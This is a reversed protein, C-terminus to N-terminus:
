CVRWSKVLGRMAAFQRDVEQDAAGSRALVLTALMFALMMETYDSASGSAIEGSAEARDFAPRVNSRIMDRYRSGLAATREDRVGLETTVNVALCGLYGHEGRAEAEVFDLMAQVDDLGASGASIAENMLAGRTEVYREVAREFLEDKSGFTNYLSSKNLGTANVIDSIATAEFGREWFLEVVSDLTAQEDFARPRGRPRRQDVAIVPAEETTEMDSM